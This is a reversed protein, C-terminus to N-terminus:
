AVHVDGDLLVNFTTRLNEEDGKCAPVAKVKVTALTLFGLLVLIELPNLPIWAKSEVAFRMAVKEPVAGVTLFREGAEAVPM